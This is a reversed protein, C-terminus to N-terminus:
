TRVSRLSRIVQSRLAHSPRALCASMSISDAAPGTAITATISVTGGDTKCTGIAPVATIKAAHGDIHTLKGATHSLLRYGAPVPFGNSFWGIMLDGSTLRAQPLGRCDTRIGTPTRTTTCPASVPRNSLFMLETTFSGAEAFHYVRWDTPHSVSIGASTDRVWGIARAPAVPDKAVRSFACGALPVLIGLTVFAVFAPRKGPYVSGWRTSTRM